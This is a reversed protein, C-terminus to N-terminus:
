RSARPMTPYRFGAPNHEPSGFRHNDGPHGFWGRTDPKANRREEAVRAVDGVLKEIAAVQHPKPNGKVIDVNM